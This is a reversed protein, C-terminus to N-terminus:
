FNFYSEAVNGGCLIVGIRKIEEKPGMKEAQGNLLAGIGTAAAPEVVLKLRSYCFRMGELVQDDDVTLVTPEVMSSVIPWPVEGIPMTRIADCITDLSANAKDPDIVRQQARLSDELRKGHPEVAFVKIGRPALASAVGALMGGGSTPVIVADLDPIQDAMELGITGQGAIVDSHNYPPIITAGTKEAVENMTSMRSQQDPNCLVVNAGYTHKMGEIKVKPCTRPVVVTCSTGMLQAAAALGMGHNGSSHTVVGKTLAREDLNSIANLAGRFKFSGTKQLCEAKFFVERGVVENMLASTYVPTKHAYPKIRRAAAVIPDAM